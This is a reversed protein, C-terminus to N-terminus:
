QAGFAVHEGDEATMNHPLPDGTGDEDPDGEGREDFEKAEQTLTIIDADLVDLANLAADIGERLQKEPQRGKKGLVKAVQLDQYAAALRDAWTQRQEKAVKLRKRPDVNKQLYALAREDQEQKQNKDAM